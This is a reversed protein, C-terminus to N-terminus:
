QKCEKELVIRCHQCDLGEPDITYAMGCAGAIRIMDAAKIKVKGTMRRVLWMRSVGLREALKQQSIEAYSICFGVLMIRTDKM